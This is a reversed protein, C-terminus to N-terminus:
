KKWNTGIETGVELPIDFNINFQDKMKQIVQNTLQYNVLKKIHDQSEIRTEFSIEDHVTMLLRTHYEPTLNIEKFIEYLSQIGLLCIDSAASQIPFNIGQRLVRHGMDSKRSAGPLHRIRGFITRYYGQIIIADETSRVWRMLTSNQMYWKNIIDTCEQETLQVGMQRILQVLHKAGIGYLIGFNIRKTAYRYDKMEKHSKHTEDQLIKDVIHYDLNRIDCMVSTHVDRGEIFAKMLNPERSLFAAVRLEIQSYDATVFWKYDPSVEFIERVEPPKNQLNAESSSLRGTVAGRMTGSEDFAKALNYTTHVRDEYTHELLEELHDLNKEAKRFRLIDDLFIEQQETLDLTQLAALTAKDTSPKGKKTVTLVPFRLVKYLINALQPGSALNLKIYKTKLQTVVQKNKDYFARLKNLNLYVGTQEMEVFIPIMDTVFNFIHLLGQRKLEPYFKEMLLLPVIADLQNSKIVREYPENILNKKDIDDWYHGLNTYIASLAQLSNDNSNEDIMAHAISSDILKHKLKLGPNKQELFKIDFKINHGVIVECNPNCPYGYNSDVEPHNINFGTCEKVFPNAIAITLLTDTYPNLGTTEIDVGYVSNSILPQNTELKYEFETAPKNWHSMIWELDNSLTAMKNPDTFIVNHSFTCAVQTQYADFFRQRLEKLSYAKDFLARTAVSGMAIILKPKVEEIEQLLYKRCERIEKAIPKHSACCKVAATLYCRDLIGAKSLLNVLVTGGQGMMLSGTGDQAQNTNDIVVMIDPNPKGITSHGYLCVTKTPENRKCLKCIPNRM